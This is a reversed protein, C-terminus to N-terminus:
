GNNKKKFYWYLPVGILTLILGFISNIFHTKGSIYNNVDNILTVIFYFATFLIFIIPISPYGWVKYVREAEPMKRRLIFLGYAAFGYFIWTIFVFMDSLMDFSGSLVFLCSWICQLWLANGPTHFRTHVKGAWLFFNKEESMAFTIRACPLINGNTAGATSLMVLLAILGGGAAGMVANLADSAVLSSKKMDDIPLMYLYAQTTFVYMLICIGIGIILGRPINRKPNKIEGAVFGLNNWGDYAALAGSTAAIFGSILGWYSADRQSSPTIFNQFSGKGSLFISLILVVLSTVKLVSFLVQVAGGAKVSYYNLWTFILILLIALSKVGINELPFITGIYPIYLRINKETEVDFTPLHFFYEAYQAFVFSIAAIAATNIVIFAAWGYMFAFFDGYMHRFYVYQGGTKPLITGVEANIMGGIMSVLGAVIWVLLLIIPSGTQAAMTAPKMFIGSGIVSGVVISVSTWLGLQRQLQPV